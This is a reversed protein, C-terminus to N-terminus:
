TGAVVTPCWTAICLLLVLATTSTIFTTPLCTALRHQVCHTLFIFCYLHCVCVCACVCVCVCMCVCVCVCVGRLADKCNSAPNAYSRGYANAIMNNIGTESGTARVVENNLNTTLTGEASLARTKEALVSAALSLEVGGARGTEQQYKLFSCFFTLVTICVHWVAFRAQTHTHTHTHTHELSIHIRCRWICVM